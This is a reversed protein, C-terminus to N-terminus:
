TEEGFAPKKLTSYTEIATISLKLSIKISECEEISVNDNCVINSWSMDSQIVCGVTKINIFLAPSQIRGDDLLTVETTYHNTHKGSSELTV